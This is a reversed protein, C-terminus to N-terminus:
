VFSNRFLEQRGLELSDHFGQYAIVFGALVLLPLCSDFINFDATSLFPYESLFRLVVM